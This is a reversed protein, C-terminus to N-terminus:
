DMPTLILTKLIARIISDLMKEAVTVANAPGIENTPIATGKRVLPAKPVDFGMTTMGAVNTQPATNQINQSRIALSAKAGSSSLMEVTVEM